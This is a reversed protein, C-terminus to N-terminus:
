EWLEWQGLGGPAFGPPPPRQGPDGHVARSWGRLSQLIFIRSATSIGAGSRVKPQWCCSPLCSPQLSIESGSERSCSPFFVSCASPDSRPIKQRRLYAWLGWNVNPDLCTHPNPSPKQGLLDLRPDRPGACEQPKIFWDALLLMTWTGGKFILLPQSWSQCIRRREIVILYVPASSAAFLIKKQTFTASFLSITPAQLVLWSQSTHNESKLFKSSPERLKILLSRCLFLWYSRDTGM